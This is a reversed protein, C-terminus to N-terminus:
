TQTMSRSKLINLVSNNNRQNRVAHFEDGTLHVRLGGAMEEQKRDLYIYELYDVEGGDRGGADPGGDWGGVLTEMERSEDGGERQRRM